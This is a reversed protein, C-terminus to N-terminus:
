PQEDALTSLISDDVGNRYALSRGGNRAKANARHVIDFLLTGLNRGFVWDLKGVICIHNRSSPYKQRGM